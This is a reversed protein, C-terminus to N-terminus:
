QQKMVTIKTSNPSMIYIDSIDLMWSWLCVVWLNLVVVKFSGFYNGSLFAAVKWHQLELKEAGETKHNKGNWEPCPKTWQKGIRHVVSLM